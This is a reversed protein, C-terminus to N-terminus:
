PTRSVELPPQPLVHANVLARLCRLVDRAYEAVVAGLALMPIPDYACQRAFQAHAAFSHRRISEGSASPRTISVGSFATM